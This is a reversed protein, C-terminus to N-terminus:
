TSAALAAALAAKSQESQGLARFLELALQRCDEDETSRMLRLICGVGQRHTYYGPVSGCGTM